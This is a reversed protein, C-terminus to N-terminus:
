EDEWGEAGASRDLDIAQCHTIAYLLKDHMIQKTTYAPLDLTFFCTHSVPLYQDPNGSVSKNTMSFNKFDKGSPLRSRGWVFRLFLSREKPSMETLVEWFFKVQPDSESLGSYSTKSKLIEVNIDAAGCVLTEVQKWSFMYLQNLPIVASMGKRILAFVSDAETLRQKELLEAFELANEFTVTRDKGGPCLEVVRGGSDRTTFTEGDFASSFNGETIGQAELNRLIELTQFICEDFSKLDMTNVEDFILRKWFVPALSLNLNNSTRIAVGLLKGLFLFMEQQVPLDSAPNLLWGDRNDGLNHVGNPCQVFLPLYKSMLEECMNTMVENYPGGADISGEGVFDVRYIREGNRLARNSSKNMARYVQGFISSVGQADVMGREKQRMAKTRNVNITPMDSTNTASLITKFSAQKYKLFLFGRLSLFARQLESLQQSGRLELSILPLATSAQQNLNKVFRFVARIDEIPLKELLGYHLLEEPTPSIDEPTLILPEKDIKASMEDVYNVLQECVDKSFLHKHKKLFPEWEEQLDGLYDFAKEKNKGVFVPKASFKYGFKESAGATLGRGLLDLAATWPSNTLLTVTAAGELVLGWKYDKTVDLQLGPLSLLQTGNKYIRLFSAAIDLYFAVSDGAKFGEVAFSEGQKTAVGSSSYSYMLTTEGKQAIGFSAAASLATFQVEQFQRGAALAINSLTLSSDSSGAPRTVTKGDASCTLLPNKATNWQAGLHNVYGVNIPYHYYFKEGPIVTTLGSLKAGGAEVSKISVFQGSGGFCAAGTVPGTVGTFTYAVVGNKSYIMTHDDLDLAFTLEDGSTFRRNADDGATGTQWFANGDRSIAWVPANWGQCMASSLDSYTLGIFGVYLCSSGGDNDVKFTIQVKGSEFAEPMRCIGWGGSNTRNVTKNGNSFAMDPGTPSVQWEGDASGGKMILIPQQAESDRSFLIFHAPDAESDKSFAVEIANAGKRLVEKSSFTKIYPHESERELDMSRGKVDLFQKLVLFQFNIDKTTIGKLFCFTEYFSLLWDEQFTMNFKEKLHLLTDVAGKLLGSKDSKTLERKYEAGTEKALIDVIAASQDSVDLPMELAKKLLVMASGYRNSDKSSHAFLMLANQMESGLFGSLHPPLACQNFVLKELIWLARNVDNESSPGESVTASATFLYGWENVSGDSHFKYYLTDGEFEFNPWTSGTHRYLEETCERNKCFILYDCGNESKCRSDFELTIKKAGPFAIEGTTEFSNEYPHSSEVSLSKQSTTGDGVSFLPQILQTLVDVLLANGLSSAFDRRELMATVAPKLLAFKSGSGELLISLQDADQVADAWRTLLRMALQFCTEKKFAKEAAALRVRLQVTSQSELAAIEEAIKKPNFAAATPIADEFSDVLGGASAKLPMTTLDFIAQKRYYFNTRVALFHAAGAGETLNYAKGDKEVITYGPPIQVALRDTVRVLIVDVLAAGEGKEEKIISLADEKVTIKSVFTMGKKDATKIGVVKGAYDTYDNTWAGNHYIAVREFGASLADGIEADVVYHYLDTTPATTAVKETLVEALASKFNAHKEGLAAAASEEVGLASILGDAIGNSRAFRYSVFKGVAEPAGVQDEEWFPVSDSFEGSFVTFGKLEVQGPSKLWLGYTTTTIEEFNFGNDTISVLESEGGETRVNIVGSCLITIRYLSNKGDGAPLTFNGIRLGFEAGSPEGSYGLAVLITLAQPFNEQKAFIDKEFRKSFEKFGATESSICLHGSSSERFRASKTSDKFNPANKDSRALKYLLPVPVPVAAAKTADNREQIHKLAADIETIGKEVVEKIDAHSLGVSEFSAVLIQKEENYSAVLSQWEAEAEEKSVAEPPPPSKIQKELTAKHRSFLLKRIEYYLTSSCSESYGATLNSTLKSLLEPVGEGSLSHHTQCLAALIDMSTSQILTRIAATNVKSMVEDGKSLPEDLQIVLASLMKFLDQVLYEPVKELVSLSSEPVTAAFTEVGETHLSDDGECYLKIKNDKKRILVGQSASAGQLEVHSWEHLFAEKRGDLGRLFSFAGLMVTSSQADPTYDVAVEVLKVCQEFIYDRWRESECLTQLFSTAEFRLAEIKELTLFSHKLSPVHMSSKIGIFALLVSLLTKATEQGYTARLKDKPISNWISEFSEPSHEQALLQRLIRMAITRTKVPSYLMHKLLEVVHRQEGLATLMGNAGCCQYLLLMLSAQYEAQAPSLKAKYFSSCSSPLEYSRVFMKFVQFDEPHKEPHAVIYNFFTFFDLDGEENLFEAPTGQQVEAKPVIGPTKAEMFRTMFVGYSSWADAEMSTQFAKLISAVSAAGMEEQAAAFNAPLNQLLKSTTVYKLWFSSVLGEAHTTIHKLFLFFDVEGAENKYEAQVEAPAEEASVKGKMMPDVTGVYNTILHVLSIDEYGPYGDSTLEYEMADEAIRGIWEAMLNVRLDCAPVEQDRWGKASILKRLELNNESGPKQSLCKLESMLLDAFLQQLKSRRSQKAAQGTGRYKGASAFMLLKFLLWAARRLQSKRNARKKAEEESIDPVLFSKYPATEVSLDIPDWGSVKVKTVFVSGEAVPARKYMITREGNGLENIGELKGYEEDFGETSSVVTLSSIPLQSEDASGKTLQLCLKRQGEVEEAVEGALRNKPNLSFAEYNPPNPSYSSEEMVALDLVTKSRDFKMNFKEYINQGKAWSLLFQAAPRINLDLLSGSDSDSFPFSLAEMTGLISQATGETTCDVNKLVAPQIQDLLLKYLQFFNRQLCATLYPDVGETGLAYHRKVGGAVFGQSFAVSILTQLEAKNTDYVGKFAQAMLGLGISRATAKNRRKAIEEAIGVSAWQAGLVDMVLQYVKLFEKKDQEQDTEAGARRMVKLSQITKMRSLMVVSRKVAGWKSGAKAKEEGGTQTRKITGVLSQLVKEIGVEQLTAKYNSNLLYVCKAVVEQGLDTYSVDKNSTEIMQQRQLQAWPRLQGVQKLIFVFMEGVEQAEEVLEAFSGSLEFFALFVGFLAREAQNLEEGGLTSLPGTLKAQSKLGEFAAVTRDSGAILEEIIPIDCFQFSCTENQGLRMLYSTLVPRNDSKKPALNKMVGMKLLGAAASAKTPLKEETQTAAILGALSADLQQKNKTVLYLATDSVGGRLLQNDLAGTVPEEVAIMTKCLSILLTSAANRVEDAWPAKTVTIAVTAEITVKWGWYVVSGDSHFSFFLSPQKVEVPTKPWNESPGTWKFVETSKTSDTWLQLYDCNNETYCQPDFFLNYYLAGPVNVEHTIDLGCEYQHNSEYVQSITTTGSDTQSKGGKISSLASTLKVTEEILYASFATDFKILSLARFLTILHQDLMTERVKVELEEPLAEDVVWGKVLSLLGHTRNMVKTLFEKVMDIFDASGETKALQGLMVTQAVFLTGLSEADLKDAGQLYKDASDFAMDTLIGVFNLVRSKDEASGNSLIRFLSAPQSFRKMLDAAVKKEAQDAETSYYTTLVYELQSNLTPFFSDFSHLTVLLAQTDLADRAAVNEASAEVGLGELTLLSFYKLCARIRAKLDQTLGSEEDSIQLKVVTVIHNILIRLASLTTWATHKFSSRSWDKAEMRGQLSEVIDVLTSFTQPKVDVVFGSSKQLSSKKPYKATTTDVGYAKFTGQAANALAALLFEGTITPDLEGELKTIPAFASERLIDQPEMAFVQDEYAEGSKGTPCAVEVGEPPQAQNDILVWQDSGGFCIIVQVEKPINSYPGAVQVGNKYFTVQHEDMNILMGVRTDAATYNGKNGDGNGNVYLDGDAQYCISDSYSTKESFRTNDAACIGICLCTSESKVIKLEVYHVGESVSQETKQNGWASSDTRTIKLNEESLAINPGQPQPNWNWSMASKSGKLNTFTQLVPAIKPFASSWDPSSKTDLFKKAFSLVGQYDGKALALGLIVAASKFQTVQDLGPVSGAYLGEFFQAFSQVGQALGPEITVLSCPELNRLVSLAIDMTRSIVQPKESGVSEVLTLLVEMGFGLGASALPPIASEAKKEAKKDAAKVAQTLRRDREEQRLLADYLRCLLQLKSYRYREEGSPDRTGLFKLETQLAGRVDSFKEALKESDQLCLLALEQAEPKASAKPAAGSDLVRYQGLGSLQNTASSPLQQQLLALLAEDAEKSKSLEADGLSAVNTALLCASNGM